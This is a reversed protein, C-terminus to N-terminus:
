RPAIGKESKDAAFTRGAMTTWAGCGDGSLMMIGSVLRVIASRGAQRIRISPDRGSLVRLKGL